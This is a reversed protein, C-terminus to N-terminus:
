RTRRIWEFEIEGTKTNLEYRGFGQQTAEQYVKASNDLSLGVGIGGLFAMGAFFVVVFFPIRNDKM